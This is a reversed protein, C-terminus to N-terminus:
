RLLREKLKQKTTKIILGDELEIEIWDSSQPADIVIEQKKEDCPPPLILDGVKTSNIGMKKLKKQLDGCWTVLDPKTLTIEKNETLKAGDWKLLGLTQLEKLIELVRDKPLKSLNCLLEFTADQRYQNLLFYITARAGDNRQRNMKSKAYDIKSLAYKIKDEYYQNSM